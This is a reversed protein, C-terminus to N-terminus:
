RVCGRTCGRLDADGSDVCENIAPGTNPVGLFLKSLIQVADSLDLGNAENVNAAARCLSGRGAFLFDLVAIADTLSVEGSQNADGSLFAYDPKEASGKTITFRDITVASNNIAESVLRTPSITLSVCHFESYLVPILHRHPRFLNPNPFYLGVGGGGTVVYIPGDPNVYDPDQHGDVIEDDRIPYSREYLHEHGSLVLDIGLEEFVPVVHEGLWPTSGHPGKSYPPHHLFVINWAAEASQVDERLWDLGNVTTLSSCSNLAVLHADGVDFSYTLEESPGDKPFHFARRFFEIDTQCDHNGPVAYVPTYALFDGYVDFFNQQYLIPAAAPYALDGTHLMANLDLSRLVAAVSDQNRGFDPLLRYGSDGIAAIRVENGPPPMPQFAGFYSVDGHRVEYQYTLGALLDGAFFAHDHSPETEEAILEFPEGEIALRLSGVVPLESQSAIIVSEPTLQQLFPRREFTCEVNADAHVVAVTIRLLALGALWAAIGRQRRGRTREM